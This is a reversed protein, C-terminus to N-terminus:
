IRMAKCLNKLNLKLQLWILILISRFVYYPIKGNPYEPQLLMEEYPDQHSAKLIVSCKAQDRRQQQLVIGAQRQILPILIDSITSFEGRRDISHLTLPYPVGIQLLHIYDDGYGLQKVDLNQIQRLVDYSQLSKHLIEVNEATEAGLCDWAIDELDRKTLNRPLSRVGRIYDAIYYFKRYFPRMSEHFGRLSDQSVLVDPRTGSGIRQM